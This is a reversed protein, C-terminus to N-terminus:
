ELGRNLRATRTNLMNLRIGEGNEPGYTQQVDYHVDDLMRRAGKTRERRPAEFRRNDLNLSGAGRLRTTENCLKM